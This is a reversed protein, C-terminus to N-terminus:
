YNGSEDRIFNFLSKFDSLYDDNIEGTPVVYIYLMSTDGQPNKWQAKSLGQAIMDKAKARMRKGQFVVAEIQRGGKEFPLTSNDTSM